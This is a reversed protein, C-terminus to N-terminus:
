RSHRWARSTCIRPAFASRSGSGSTTRSRRTCRAPAPDPQVGPEAPGGGRRRRSAGRRRVPQHKAHRHLVRRVPQAAAFLSRGRHRDAPDHRRAHRRHSGRAGHGGIPRPDRLHETATQRSAPGARGGAGPLPAPCRPELAARRLPLRRRRAGDGAVAGGAATRRREVPAAEARASPRHPIHAGGSQRAARDGAASRTALAAWLRHERLGDPSPFIAYDQFVMAVDRDRPRLNTVIREGFAIDGSTVAELGALLRLTTTKGCGSPGVLVLFEGDGVAFSTDAVALRRASASSWIAPSSRM